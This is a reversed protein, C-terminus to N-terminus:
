ASGPLAPASLRWLDEPRDIDARPPLEAWRLGTAVFRARQQALVTDSGWAIGAFVAPPLRRFGVLVYGGDLAPGLVADNGAELAAVASRLYGPEYDLCDSGVVVVARCEGLAATVARGMREGLDGDGQALLARGEQAALGGLFDDAPDDVCLVADWGAPLERLACAVRVTLERAVASAQEPGLGAHLRTKVAGARPAKAFQLFRGRRPRSDAGAM